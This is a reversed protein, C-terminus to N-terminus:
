ARAREAADTASLCAMRCHYVFHCTYGHHILTDAIDLTRIEQPSSSLHV